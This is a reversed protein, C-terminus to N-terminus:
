PVKPVFDVALASSGLVTPVEVCGQGCMRRHVRRKVNVHPRKRVGSKRALPTSHATLPDTARDRRL